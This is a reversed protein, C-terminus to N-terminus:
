DFAVPTAELFYPKFFRERACLALVETLLDVGTV